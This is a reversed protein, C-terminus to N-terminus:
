GYLGNDDRNAERIAVGGLSHGIAITQNGRISNSGTHLRDAYKPIREDTRYTFGSSRIRSDRQANAYQRNSFNADDGLGHAWFVNRDQASLKIFASLLLIYTIKKM